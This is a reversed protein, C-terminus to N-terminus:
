ERSRDNMISYKRSGDLPLHVLVRTGKGPASDVLARGGLLRARERIGRLGFRKPEVVAPDFGVGWDQIELELQDGLQTLRIRARDSRSHRRLNTVSEQVIRYIAGELLPEWRDSQVQVDLEISPGGPPQDAILYEIAKALGLEEFNPPRLGLVFQRAEGVAKRILGLVGELSEKLQGSPVQGSELLAELHLQAATIDQVVGDHLEYALLQRERQYSRLM